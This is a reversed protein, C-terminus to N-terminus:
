SNTSQIATIKERLRAIKEDAGMKLVDSADHLIDCALHLGFGLAVYARLLSISPPVLSLEGEPEPPMYAPLDAIHATECAMRYIRQYHADLGCKDALQELKPNRFREWNEEIGRTVDALIARWELAYVSADPSSSNNEHYVARARCGEAYVLRAREEGADHDVWHYYIFSEVMTKLHHSCEGRRERADIVLREFSACAKLALGILVRNRWTIPISSRRLAANLTEVTALQLLIIENAVDLLLSLKKEALAMHEEHYQPMHKDREM